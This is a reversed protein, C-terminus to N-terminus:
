TGHVASSRRLGDRWGEPVGRRMTYLLAWPQGPLGFVGGRSPRPLEVRTYHSVSHNCRVYYFGFTLPRGCRPCLSSERGIFTHGTKDAAERREAREIAASMVVTTM